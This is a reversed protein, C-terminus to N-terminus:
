RDILRALEDILRALLLDFLRTAVASAIAQVILEATKNPKKKRSRHQM